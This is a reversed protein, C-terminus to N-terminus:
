KEEFNECCISCVEDCLAKDAKVADLSGLERPTLPVFSEDVEGNQNLPEFADNWREQRDSEDEDAEALRILLPDHRQM